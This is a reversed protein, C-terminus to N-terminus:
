RNKDIDESKNMIINKNNYKNSLIEDQLFCLPKLQTM